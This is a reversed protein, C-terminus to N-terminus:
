WRWFPRMDVTAAVFAVLVYDPNSEVPVPPRRGVSSGSLRFLNQKGIQVYIPPDIDGVRCARGSVDKEQKGHVLAGVNSERKGFVM